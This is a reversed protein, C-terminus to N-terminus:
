CDPISNGDTDCPSNGGVFVYNVIWVADSVNVTGDCNADGSEMPDPADGGVFVYNIIWVADSINCNEDSNADGCIYPAVYESIDITIEMQDTNPPTDSDTLEIIFTYTSEWNPIGELTGVSGGTFTVGYPIQGTIRTWTYPEVGGVATFQFFYYEGLLGDPVDYCQMHLLGDCADGVGDENEDYQVPNYTTDCNDCLDGVDDGDYDAQNINHHLPCNDNENLLGDDDADPDCVDGLGDFDVDSQDPNFDDPCNDDDCTNEVIGPDGWNDQDSDQCYGWSLLTAGYIGWTIGIGIERWSYWHIETDWTDYIGYRISVDDYGFATVFHDTGGNGDTDVLLVVPRGADIENKYDQWSFESYNYNTSTPDYTGSILAVYEEYAIPVDSMWSWGYKNGVSSWSTRMFDALCESAHAGGTESKDPQIGGSADMPCSYDRYHDSYMDNCAAFGNDTAMMAEAQLTQTSASGTVLDSYGRNDWYGIVMGAATPGCGHHWLYAPVGEIIVQGRTKGTFGRDTEPPPTPGTTSQQSYVTNSIIIVIIVVNILLYKNKMINEEDISVVLM